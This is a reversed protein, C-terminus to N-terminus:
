LAPSPQRRFFDVTYDIFSRTAKSRYFKESYSLGIQRACVPEEIHLFALSSSSAPEWFHSIPFLAVGIGNNILKEFEGFSIITNVEFVIRPSFGAQLCFQDSLERLGIGKQFMIFPEDKAEILRISGRNAFKHGAPVHLCVEETFLPICTLGDGIVPPSSICLNVTNNKLHQRMEATSNVSFALKVSPHKPLFEKLLPPILSPINLAISISSTRERSLDRLEQEAQELQDFINNVRRLLTIGCNNLSIGRGRRDFLPVGFYSELRLISKSLTPQAIHLEEAARSMHEHKAVAQFYKLQLLDM